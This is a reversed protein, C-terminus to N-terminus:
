LGGKGYLNFQAEPAGGPVKAFAKVAADAAFPAPLPTELAALGATNTKLFAEHGRGGNHLVANEPVKVAALKLFDLPRVRFDFEMKPVAFLANSLSITGKGNSMMRMSPAIITLNEFTTATGNFSMQGMGANGVALVNKVTVSAKPDGSWAMQTRNDILVANEVTHKANPGCQFEIGNGRSNTIYVNKTVSVADMVHNMGNDCERFDANEVTIECTGHASIGEDGCQFARINEFVVGKVRGHINFGDNWCHQTNVNRIKVYNAMGAIHFCNTRTMATLTEKSPDTGAAPRYFVDSGVRSWNGEKLRDKAWGRVAENGNVALATVEKLKQYRLAGIKSHSQQFLAPDLKIKEGDIQTVEFELAKLDQGKAPMFYFFKDVYCWCWEGIELSDRNLQELVVKGGIIMGDRGPFNAATFTGNELKKWAAGPIDEGGSVTQNNGDITIYAEPTGGVQNLIMEERYLKGTPALYVTDGAKLKPHISKLTAVPADKAGTAGDKGNVNDIHYEAAGLWAGGLLLAAFCHMKM